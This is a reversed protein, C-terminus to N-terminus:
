KFREKFWKPLIDVGFAKSVKILLPLTIVAFPLMALAGVGLGKLLDRLQENAKQMEKKSAIGQLYRAYVSFMETTEVTEQELIEKIQLLINKIKNSINKIV